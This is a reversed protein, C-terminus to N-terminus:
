YPVIYRVEQNITPDPRIHTRVQKSTVQECYLDIMNSQKWNGIIWFKALPDVGVTLM